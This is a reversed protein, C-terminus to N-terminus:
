EDWGEVFKGTIALALINVSAKALDEFVKDPGEGYGDNETILSVGFGRQPRWEVVIHRGRVTVDLWWPKAPSDPIELEVIADPLALKIMAELLQIKNV